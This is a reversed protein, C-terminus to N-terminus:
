KEAALLLGTLEPHQEIMGASYALGKYRGHMDSYEAAIAARRLCEAIGRRNGDEMSGSGLGGSVTGEASRAMALAEMEFYRSSRRLYKMADQEMGLVRAKMGANDYHAGATYYDRAGEALGALKLERRIMPMDVLMSKLHTSLHM